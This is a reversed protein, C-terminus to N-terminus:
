LVRIAALSRFSALHHCAILSSSNAAGQLRAAASCIMPNVRAMLKAAKVATCMTCAIVLCCILVKIVQGQVGAEHSFELM